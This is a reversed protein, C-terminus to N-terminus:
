WVFKESQVFMSGSGCAADYTRGKYPVLMELLSRVVCSPTYFQGGNKGEAIALRTPFYEYVRGLLDVSRRNKEGECAATLEIITILDM